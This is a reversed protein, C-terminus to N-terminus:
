SDAETIKFFSAAGSISFSVFLAIFFLTESRSAVHEANATIFIGGHKQVDALAAVCLLSGGIWSIFHVVVLVTQAIIRM